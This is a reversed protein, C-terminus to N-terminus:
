DPLQKSIYRNSLHVQCLIPPQHRTVFDLFDEIDTDNQYEVTIEANVTDSNPAKSATCPSYLLDVLDFVTKYSTVTEVTITGDYAANDNRKYSKSSLGFSSTSDVGDIFINFNSSSPAPYWNHFATLYFAGYYGDQYYRDRPIEHKTSGQGFSVYPVTLVKNLSADQELGQTMLTQLLELHPLRQVLQTLDISINNGSTATVLYNTSAQVPSFTNNIQIFDGVRIWTSAIPVWRM